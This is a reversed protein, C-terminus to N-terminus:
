MASLATIKGDERSVYARSLNSDPRFSVTAIRRDCLQTRASRARTSGPARVPHPCRNRLEAQLHRAETRTQNWRTSM